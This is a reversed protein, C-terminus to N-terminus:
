NKKSANQRWYRKIVYSGILVLTSILTIIVALKLALDYFIQPPLLNILNDTVPNLIWLNNSFLLQHFVVFSANFQLIVSVLLLLNLGLLSASGLILGRLLVSMQKTRLLYFGLMVLLGISLWLLVSATQFLQKVDKLHRKEKENYFTSKIEKESGELYSLVYDFENDVLTKNGEFETYVGYQDFKERYFSRNFSIIQLSTFLIIFVLTIAAGALIIKEKNM